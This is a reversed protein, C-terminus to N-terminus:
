RRKGISDLHLTQLAKLADELNIHQGFAKHVERRARQPLQHRVHAHSPKRPPQMNIRNVDTEFQGWERETVAGRKGKVLLM